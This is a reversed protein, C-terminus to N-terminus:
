LVAKSCQRSLAWRSMSTLMPVIQDRCIATECGATLHFPTAFFEHLTTVATLSKHVGEVAVKQM